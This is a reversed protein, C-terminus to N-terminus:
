SAVIAKAAEAARANSPAVLVGASSLIAVQRSWVQPDAETGTVSAIVPKKAGKLARVLVGAPDAHAGYGIVVDCDVVREGDLRLVVRLVGHTSPHQPGMNIVLENTDFQNDITAM